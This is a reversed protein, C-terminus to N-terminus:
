ASRIPMPSTACCTSRTRAGTSSRAATARARRDLDQPGHRLRGDAGVRADDAPRRDRWRPAAARGGAHEHRVADHPDGLSRSREVAAEDIMSNCEAIDRAVAERRPRAQRCTRGAIPQYPRHLAHPVAILVGDVEPRELLDEFDSVHDVGYDAALASARRGGHIAILRAGRVHRAAAEAYVGGMDGSGVIAIRVTPWETPGAPEDRRAGRRGGDSSRRTWTSGWGPVRRCTSGLRGEPPAADSFLDIRWPNPDSGIELMPLDHLPLRTPDPM